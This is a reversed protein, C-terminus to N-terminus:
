ARSRASSRRRTRRLEANLFALHGREEDAFELFIRQAESHELQEGYRQFFRHSGRECDIAVRLVDEPTTGARLQATGAAFVASAPRKFFLFTPLPEIEPHEALLAAHREELAEQHQREEAALRQFVQRSQSARMRRAARAYFGAAARETEIAMRLADRAFVWPTSSGDISATAKGTRCRECLGHVQVVARSSTFGRAVAIEELLSEVDSSLFESSSRCSECILHFHRPRGPSAEYRSRGEGFDVKHALGADVMRQLTRYVTARGIRPHHRRVAEFLEDASVHGEQQLFVDVIRDRKLSRNSGINRPAARPTASM